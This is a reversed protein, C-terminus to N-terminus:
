NNILIKRIINKSNTGSILGVFYIGNSFTSVDIKLSINGDNIDIEKEIISRGMVDKVFLSTSQSNNANILVTMLNHVPNNAVAMDFKNELCSAVAIIDSYTYKGNFDTQKLRYYHLATNAEEDTVSYNLLENSTGAGPVIAIVDWNYADLSKEITFNSNNTESATQWNIQVKNNICVGEFLTLQIPLPTYTLTPCSGSLAPLNPNPSGYPAIAPILTSSFISATTGSYAVNINETGNRRYVNNTAGTSFACNYVFASMLGTGAHDYITIDVGNNGPDVTNGSFSTSDINVVSSGSIIGIAGGYGSGGASIQNNTFKSRTILATGGQVTISGGYYSTGTNSSYAHDFLCDQIKLNGNNMYIDAGGKM